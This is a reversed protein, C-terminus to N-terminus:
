VKMAQTELLARVITQKGLPVKFANHQRTQANAFAAEAAQTATDEDLEKGKLVAEAEHARWPVTAVGGLAIRAERVAAGDLDLAVAAATLAFQYSDRDRIKLYRSRATWPGAPVNIFLILEGPQLVTEVNPTAGPRTHLDAFKITRAGNPGMTEVTADLAILAQAFDGAYTAICNQSAGLVAHQRNHGDLAACGSGPNRKNCPWSTERFYECRTRQLVNGGLSAMNRIQRTAALKLTDHIVPYKSQIVPHDEAQAMRVLAGLRLGQPNTEIRAYRAAPLRNIDVLTDPRMVDLAMYDTMNTGGAIFQGPAQVPPGSTQGARAAQIAADVSEPRRYAFRHM